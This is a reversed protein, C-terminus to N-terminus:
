FSSENLIMKKIEEQFVETTFQRSWDSASKRLSDFTSQDKLLVELNAVDEELNMKLLMGRNGNDLMDPVCSVATALPLCGWFMGEAIVKPWGESQSPLIVFHSNQYAKKVVDSKENGYLSVVNQLKRKLIYDELKTMEIGEGYIHLHVENGKQFLRETLQVAYFPNKGKTLAGVFVFHITQDLSKERLPMKENESYTATFFPYINKSQNKWNGYVLVKMKRTLFTNNLIWKQLKYSWPQRSKPDWNGAYKATKNKKPFLVQIFCGILGINGPCRLHIHDAESMTKFIKFCIKPIKFITNLTGRLTLINIKPIAYFKINDHQYTEVILSKESLEVPAIIILEEIYNAWIDMERIYPAYAFYQNQEILHPVHTIIVFKM